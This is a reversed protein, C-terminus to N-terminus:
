QEGEKEDADILKKERTQCVKIIEEVTEILILNNDEFYEEGRMCEDKYECTNCKQGEMAENHRCMEFYENKVKTQINAIHYSKAYQQLKKIFEKTFIIKM